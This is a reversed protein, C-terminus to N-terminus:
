HLVYRFREVATPINLWVVSDISINIKTDWDITDFSYQWDSTIVTDGDIDSNQFNINITDSLLSISNFMFTPQNSNKIKIPKIIAVTGTDNDKVTIRFQVTDANIKLDAGSKWIISNSYQSQGINMTDGIVTAKKWTNGSDVSYECLISLTDQEADYLQYSMSFDYHITDTTMNPLLIGPTDNNDLKIYAITESTVIGDNVILKFM